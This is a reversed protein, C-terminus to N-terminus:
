EKHFKAFAEALEQESFQQRVTKKELKRALYHMLNGMRQSGQARAWHAEREAILDEKTADGLAGSSIGYELFMNSRTTEAVARLGTTDDPRVAARKAQQRVGAQAQRVATDIALEIMPDILAKQLSKDDELRKRMLKLARPRKGSAKDLCEKALGHLTTEPSEDRYDRLHAVSALAM